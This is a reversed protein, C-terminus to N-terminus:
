HHAAVGEAFEAAVMAVDRELWRVVAYAEKLHGDTDPAGDASKIQALEARLVPLVVQGVGVTCEEARSFGSICGARYVTETLGLMSAISREGPPAPPLIPFVYTRLLIPLAILTPLDETLVGLEKEFEALEMSTRSNIREQIFELLACLSSLADFAEMVAEYPLRHNESPKPLSWLLDYLARADAAATAVKPTQPTPPSPPRSPPLKLAFRSAPPTTPPTESSGRRKRDKLKAAAAAGGTLAPSTPPSPPPNPRNSLAILGRWILPILLSALVSESVSSTAYRALARAYIPMMTQMFVISPHVATKVAGVSSKASPNGSPSVSQTNVAELAEAHPMLDAKIANMLPEVVRKIISVLNERVVKLSDGRMDTAEQGWGNQDLTDILEGALTALSLAHLQTPNLNPNQQTPAAPSLFASSSILPLLNSSLNNVLVSLPRHLTRVVARRLYPNECSANLESVILDGLAKGRGNPLPRRGNLLENPPAPGTPQLLAKSVAESLKLNLVEM